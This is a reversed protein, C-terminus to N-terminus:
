ENNLITKVLDYLSNDDTRNIQHANIGILKPALYDNVKGDGIMIIDTFPIGSLKSIYKYSHVDPKKYGIQHSFVGLDIYEPLLTKEYIEHYLSTQNSLIGSMYGKEKVLKIAKIADPFLKSEQHEKTIIEIQEQSLKEKDASIKTTQLFQTIFEESSKLEQCLYLPKVKNRWFEKDIDYRHKLFTFGNWNSPMDLLTQWLDFVVLKM